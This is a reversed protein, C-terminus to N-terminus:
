VGFGGFALEAALGVEAIALEVWDEAAKRSRASRAPEGRTDIAKRGVVDTWGFGGDCWVGLDVECTLEVGTRRCYSCGGLEGGM